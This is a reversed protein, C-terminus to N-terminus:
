NLGGQDSHPNVNTPNSPHGSIPKINDQPLSANIQNRVRRKDEAIQRSEFTRIRHCNSCRVVCKALEDTLAKMSRSMSKSIDFLKEGTV